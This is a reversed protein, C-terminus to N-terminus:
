GSLRQRDGARLLENGSILVVRIQKAVTAFATFV